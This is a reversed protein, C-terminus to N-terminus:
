RKVVKFTMVQEKALVRVFYIGTRNPLEVITQDVNTVNQQHVLAGTLNLVQVTAKELIKNFTVTVNQFTPNPFLSVESQSFNHTQISTFVDVRFNELTARMVAIQGKTFSNKCDGESYDMYNEVMNPLDIGTITDGCSNINKNCDYNSQAGARPTDDVYDDVSCNGDGWIHRLGLYHGVEHVLLKGTNAKGNYVAYPATFPVPNNPGIAQYHMLTGDGLGSFQEVTATPWNTHSVPPTSLGFFVLEEANNIQPELITMDGIWINLYQATDWANDGGLSDKTIRFFNYFLSDSVWQAIQTQQSINYPLIGGFNTIATQKHVIGTTANGNPDQNALYFEIKSDEVLSFFDSRLNVTDANQRRFAENLLELQGEIVADPIDEDPTNYLVHFVVPIKYLTASYRASRHYDQQVSKLFDNAKQLRGPHAHAMKLLLDHSGCGVLPNKNTSNLTQQVIGQAFTSIGLISFLIFSYLVKM